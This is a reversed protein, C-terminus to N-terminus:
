LTPRLGEKILSRVNKNSCFCFPENTFFYFFCIANTDETSLIKWGICFIITQAPHCNYSLYNSIFPSQSERFLSFKQQGIMIQEYRRQESGENMRQTGITNM